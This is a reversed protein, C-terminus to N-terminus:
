DRGEENDSHVRRLPNRPYFAATLLNYKKREAAPILLYFGMLGHYGAYIMMLHWIVNSPNGLGFGTFGDWWISRGAARLCVWFVFCGLHAVARDRGRTAYARFAWMLLMNIVLAVITTIQWALEVLAQIDITPM